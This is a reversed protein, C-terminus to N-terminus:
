VGTTQPQPGRLFSPACQWRCNDTSCPRERGACTTQAPEQPHDLSLCITCLLMFSEALAHPAYATAAQRCTSLSERTRLNSKQRVPWATWVYGKHAYKGLKSFSRPQQRHMTVQLWPWVAACPEHNGAGRYIDIHSCFVRRERPEGKHCAATIFMAGLAWILM